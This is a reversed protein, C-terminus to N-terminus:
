WVLGDLEVTSRSTSDTSDTLLHSVAMPSYIDPNRVSPFGKRRASPKKINWFLTRIFLADCDWSNGATSTPAGTYLLPLGWINLIPQPLSETHRFLGLIGNLIDDDKTLTRRSYEELFGLIVEPHEKIVDLVFMNLEKNPHKEQRNPGYMDLINVPIDEPWESEIGVTNNESCHLVEKCFASQCHFYLQQSTFALRRRSLLGEQYTWGRTAWRSNRIDWSPRRM